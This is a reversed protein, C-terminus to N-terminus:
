FHELIIALKFRCDQLEMVVSGVGGSWRSILVMTIHNFVRFFM